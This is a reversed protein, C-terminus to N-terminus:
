FLTFFYNIELKTELNYNWSELHRRVERPKFECFNSWLQSFYETTYVNFELIAVM